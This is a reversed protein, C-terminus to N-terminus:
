STSIWRREALHSLNDRSLRGNTHYIITIFVIIILGVFLALRRVFFRMRSFPGTNLTALSVNAPEWRSSAPGLHSKLDAGGCLNPASIQIPQSGRSSNWTSHTPLFNISFTKAYCWLHGVRHPISYTHFRHLFDFSAHAPFPQHSALGANMAHLLALPAKPTPWLV